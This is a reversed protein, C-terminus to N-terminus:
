YIAFISKGKIKMVQEDPVLNKLYGAKEGDVGFADNIKWTERARQDGQPLKFCNFTSSPTGYWLFGNTEDPIICTIPDKQQYIKTYERTVVDVECIAGDRGASMM